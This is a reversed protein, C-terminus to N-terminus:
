KEKEGVIKRIVTMYDTKCVSIKLKLMDEIEHKM